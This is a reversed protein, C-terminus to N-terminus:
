YYGERVPLTTYIKTSLYKIGQQRDLVHYHYPEGLAIKDLLQHYQQPGKIYLNDSKNKQIEIPYSVLNYKIVEQYTFLNNFIMNIPYQQYLDKILESSIGKQYQQSFFSERAKQIAMMEKHTFNIKSKVKPESSSKSKKSSKSKTKSKTKSVVKKSSPM